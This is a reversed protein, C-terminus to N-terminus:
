FVAAQRLMAASLHIMQLSIYLATSCKPSKKYNSENILLVSFDDPVSAGTKENFTTLKGEYKQFVDNYEDAANIYGIGKSIDAIITEVASKDAGDGTLFKPSDATKDIVNKPNVTVYPYAGM